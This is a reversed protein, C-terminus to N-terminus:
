INLKQKFINVLFLIKTKYDNLLLLLTAAGLVTGNVERLQKIHFGEVDELIFPMKKILKRTLSNWIIILTMELFVELIIRWLPTEELKDVSTGYKNFLKDIFVSGIILFTSYLVGIHVMGTMKVLNFLLSNKKGIQIQEIM